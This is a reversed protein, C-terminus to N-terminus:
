SKTELCFHAIENNIQLYNQKVLKHLSGNNPAATLLIVTNM